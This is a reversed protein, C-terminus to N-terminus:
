CLILLTTEYWIDLLILLYEKAHWIAMHITYFLHIGKQLKLVQSKSEIQDRLLNIILHVITKTSKDGDCCIHSVM